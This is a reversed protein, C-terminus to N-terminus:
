EIDSLVMNRNLVFSKEERSGDKHIVTVKVPADNVGSQKEIKLDYWDTEFDKPLVYDFVVTKETSIPVHVLVGFYKKELSEGFVPEKAGNSVNSLFSGKPAYVRLFSQYEKSFWDKTKGTHNYTVALKAKPVDGTLDIVYDYSRKIYYDTKFSGLNADVALLYDDKWNKDITGDWGSAKVEAQLAEDKFLLQIDKQHLDELVVNFLEYKKAISLAKVRELVELGLIEMVSKRDGFDIDQKLYGQEVQYELDIIANESGYKGPYGEIEIPGTVRLFSSLVNATVAIIGDFHEEGQGMRYFEEAWKANEPFDPSYNSDRLKWSGIRLTERMPYPPEVTDPIRGDFNGTDHVDFRTINGDRVKLIGFSGIFGGGPRLEMNNQFLIMYTKEQGDTDLLSNALSIVTGLDTKTEEQAPLVGLIQKLSELGRNRVEWFIFWSVLFLISLTTFIVWFKKTQKAELM